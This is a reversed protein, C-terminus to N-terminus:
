LATSGIFGAIFGALMGSAFGLVFGLGLWVYCPRAVRRHPVYITQIPAAM